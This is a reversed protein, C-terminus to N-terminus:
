MYVQPIYRNGISAAPGTHTHRHTRKYKPLDRYQNTLTTAQGMMMSDDDDHIVVRLKM